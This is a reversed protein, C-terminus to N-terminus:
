LRVDISASTTGITCTVTHPGDGIVDASESRDVTDLRAGETVTWSCPATVIANGGASASADVGAARSGDREYYYVDLEISDIAEDAVVRVPIEFSAGGEAEVQILGEGPAFANFWVQEYNAGAFAAVIAGGVGESPPNVGGAFFESHEPAVTSTLAGRGKLDTGRADRTDLPHVGQTGVAVYLEQQLEVESVPAIEWRFRDYLAGDLYFELIGEGVRAGTVAVSGEPDYEVVLSGDPSSATMRSRTADAVDQVQLRATAGLAISGRANCGLLCSLGDSWSLGVNGLEGQSPNTGISCGALAVLLTLAPSTLSFRRIRVM